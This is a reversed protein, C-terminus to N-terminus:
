SVRGDSISSGEQLFYQKPSVITREYRRSKQVSNESRALKNKLSILKEKNFSIVACSVFKLILFTLTGCNPSNFDARINGGNNEQHNTFVRYQERVNQRPAPIGTKWCYIHYKVNKRRYFHQKHYDYNFCRTSKYTTVLTKCSCMTKM